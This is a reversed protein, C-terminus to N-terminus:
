CRGLPHPPNAFTPSTAGADDRELEVAGVDGREYTEAPQGRGITVSFGQPRRETTEYVLREHQAYRRGAASSLAPWIDDRRCANRADALNRSDTIKAGVL